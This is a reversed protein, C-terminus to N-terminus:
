RVKARHIHHFIGEEAEGFVVLHEIALPRPIVKAFTKEALPRLLADQDPNLRDTLTMHFLFEDLVYPYGYADLLECQRPTLCDPNRRSREAETMPARFREFQEVVSAAFANLETTDGEPILALFGGISAVQLGELVIPRKTAAFVDVAAILDEKTLGEALRFPAKLTAHFGYRRASLTLPELMSTPQTCRAGTEADRGLWRAAADALLGRPPAFYLAYRKM